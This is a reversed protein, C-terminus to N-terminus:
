ILVIPNTCDLRPNTCFIISEYELYSAIGFPGPYDKGDYLVALDRCVWEFYDVDSDVLICMVFVVLNRFKDM